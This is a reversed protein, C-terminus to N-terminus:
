LSRRSPLHPVEGALVVLVVVVRPLALLALHARVALVQPVVVAELLRRRARVVRLRVAPVVAAEPHVRDRLVLPPAVVAVREALGAEAEAERAAL